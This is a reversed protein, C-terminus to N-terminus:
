AAPIFDPRPPLNHAIRWRRERVYCAECLAGRSAPMRCTPDSWGNNEDRSHPTYPLDAGDRDRCNCLKVEPRRDERPVRFGLAGDVVTMASSALSAITRMDDLIQAIRADIDHTLIAAREVCTTSDANRSGGDGMTANPWSDVELRERTLHELAEASRIALIDM